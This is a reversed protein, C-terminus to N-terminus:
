LVEWRLTQSATASVAFVHAADTCPIVAEDGPSLFHVANALTLGSYGVAIDGTNATSGGSGDPSWVRVARCPTATATLKGATTQAVSAATEHTAESIAESIVLANEDGGDVVDVRRTGDQDKIRVDTLM